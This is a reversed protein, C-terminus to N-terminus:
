KGSISTVMSEPLAATTATLPGRILGRANTGSSDPKSEIPFSGDEAVQVGFVTVIRQLDIRADFVLDVYDGDMILGSM